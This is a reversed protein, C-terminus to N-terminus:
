RKPSKEDKKKGFLGEVFGGVKAGVSTGVGPGLIMTGIAAGTMTGGSPYLLPSDVTGAVTLPVGTHLAKVEANIRGSLKKQPSVEVEGGDVAFAGSALRLQTFRYSGHAMALHGSLEDFRTEGGPKQQKSISSAAKEIDVGHIVGDKVDFPTELQLADLLGNASGAAASFVPRADLKGSIRSGPSLLPVVNLLELHRVDLSGELRLGKRWDISTKGSATGGYLSANVTSLDIGDNTAVGKISLQDFLLPPGAPLTWGTASADIRYQAKGFRVGAKLKGDQTALAVRAPVGKEDFYVRAGFPGFHTKGFAIQANRVRINEIRFPVEQPTGSSGKGALALASELGEQTILLGDLEISRIAKVPQLLSLLDPTVRLSGLEFNGRRGVAIGTLTVHPLPLAVLRVHKISVPHRIAASAQKEIQPIYRDLPVLFPLAVACALLLIFALLIRKFWKM